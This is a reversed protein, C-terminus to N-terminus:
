LIFLEPQPAASMHKMKALTINNRKINRIKVKDPTSHNKKTHKKKKKSLNKITKKKM